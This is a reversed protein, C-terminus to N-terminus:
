ASATPRAFAELAPHAHMDVFGPCPLPGAAEVVEGAGEAPSEAAVAAILGSDIAVGAVRLPNDGDADTASRILREVEM